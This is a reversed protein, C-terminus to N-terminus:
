PTLCCCSFFFFAMCFGTLTADNGALTLPLVASVGLLLLLLLVATGAGAVAGALPVSVSLSSSLSSAADRDAGWRWFTTTARGLLCCGAWGVQVVVEVSGLSIRM